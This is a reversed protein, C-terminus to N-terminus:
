PVSSASADASQDWRVMCRGSQPPARVPRIYEHDRAFTAHLGPKPPLDPATTAIAQIGPKEDYSIIAVADSSKKKSAAATEKLIVAPEISLRQPTHEVHQLL